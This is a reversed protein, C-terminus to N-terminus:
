AKKNKIGKAGNNQGQIVGQQNDNNKKTYASMSYRTPSMNSLFRALSVLLFYAPTL